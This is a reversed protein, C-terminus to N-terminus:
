FVKSVRTAATVLCCQVHQSPFVANARRDAATVAACSPSACCVQEEQQPQITGQKGNLSSPTLKSRQETKQADKQQQKAQCRLTHYVPAAPRPVTSLYPQKPQSRIGVHQQQMSSVKM